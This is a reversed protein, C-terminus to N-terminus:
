RIERSSIDGCEVKACERQMNRMNATFIIFYKLLYKRHGHTGVAIFFDSATRLRRAALGGRFKNARKVSGPRCPGSLVDCRREDRFFTTAEASLGHADSRSGRARYRCDDRHDISPDRAPKDPTGFRDTLSPPARDISRRPGPDPNM